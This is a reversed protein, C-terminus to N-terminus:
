HNIPVRPPGLNANHAESVLAALRAIWTHVSPDRLVNIPDLFIGSISYLVCYIDQHYFNNRPLWYRLM